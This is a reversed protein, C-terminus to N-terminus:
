LLAYSLSSNLFRIELQPFITVGWSELNDIFKTHLTIAKKKNPQHHKKKIIQQEKASRTSKNNRNAKKNELYIYIQKSNSFFYKLYILLTM